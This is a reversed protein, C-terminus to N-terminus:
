NLDLRRATGLIQRVIQSVRAGTIGLDGGASELTRGRYFVAEVIYRDRMPLAARWAALARTIEGEVVPDRYEIVDANLLDAADGDTSCTADIRKRRLVDRMANAIVTNAFTKFSAGRDVDFAVAADYLAMRGIQLAVCLQAVPLQGGAQARARRNGPLQPKGLAAVPHHAVAALVGALRHFM